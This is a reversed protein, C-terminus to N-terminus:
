DADVGKYRQLLGMQYLAHPVVGYGYYADGMHIGFPGYATLEVAKECCQYCKEYEEIHDYLGSLTYWVVPQNEDIELCKLYLEEARELNLVEPAYKMREYSYVGYLKALIYYGASVKPYKAILKELKDLTELYADRDVERQLSSGSRSYFYEYELLESLLDSKQVIEKQEKTFTTYITKGRQSSYNTERDLGITGDPVKQDTLSHDGYVYTDVIAMLAAGSEAEADEKGAIEALKVACELSKEIERTRYYFLAGEMEYSYSDPEQMLKKELIPRATDYYLNILATTLLLDSLLDSDVTKLAEELYKQTENIQRCEFMTNAVYFKLDILSLTKEEDTLDEDQEIEEMRIRDYRKAAEAVNQGNEELFTRARVDYRFDEYSDGRANVPYLDLEPDDAYQEAMAFIGALAEDYDRQYKSRADLLEVKLSSTVFRERVELLTAEDLGDEIRKEDEKTMDAPTVIGKVFNESTILRNLIYERVPDGSKAPVLELYIHYWYTSDPNENLKDMLQDRVADSNKENESNAQQYLKLIFIQDVDPMKESLQTLTELDDDLYALWAAATQSVDVQATSQLSGNQAAPQTQVETKGASETLKRFSPALVLVIVCALLFVKTLWAMISLNTGANQVIGAIAMLYIVRCLFFFLAFM